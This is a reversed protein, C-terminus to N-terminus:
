YGFLGTYVISFSLIVSVLSFIKLLFISFVSYTQKFASLVALTIVVEFFRYAVPSFIYFLVSIFALSFVINWDHKKKWTVISFVILTIAMYALLGRGRSVEDNLHIEYVTLAIVYYLLVMSIYAAFLMFGHLKKILIYTGIFLGIANQFLFISVVGIWKRYGSSHLVLLFIVMGMFHRPVQFAIIHLPNFLLFVSVTFWASQYYKFAIHSIVFISILWSLSYYILGGQEDGESIWMLLASFPESGIYRTWYVGDKIM